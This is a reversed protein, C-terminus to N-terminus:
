IQYEGVMREQRRIIRDIEEVPTLEDTSLFDECARSLRSLLEIGIPYDDSFNSWAFEQAVELCVLYRQEGIPRGDDDGKAHKLVGFLAVILVSWFLYYALKSVFQQLKTDGEM